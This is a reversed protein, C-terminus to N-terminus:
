IKAYLLKKRRELELIERFEDVNELEENLRKIEAQLSVIKQAQNLLVYGQKKMMAFVGNIMKKDTM